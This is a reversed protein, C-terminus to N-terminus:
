SGSDAEKRAKARQKAEDMLSDHRQIMQELVSQAEVLKDRFLVRDGYFGKNSSEEQAEDLVEGLVMFWDTPDSTEEIPPPVYPAHIQDSM